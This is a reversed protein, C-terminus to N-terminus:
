TPLGSFYVSYPFRYVLARRINRYLVAYKFPTESILPAICGEEESIFDVGLGTGDNSKM